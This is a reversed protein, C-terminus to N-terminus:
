GLGKIYEDLFTKGMSCTPGVAGAGAAPLSPPELRKEMWESVLIHPHLEDLLKLVQERNASVAREGASTAATERGLLVAGLHELRLLRGM